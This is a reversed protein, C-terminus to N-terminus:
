LVDPCTTLSNPFFTLLCYYSLWMAIQQRCVRSVKADFNKDVFELTETLDVSRAFSVMDALSRWDDMAFNRPM